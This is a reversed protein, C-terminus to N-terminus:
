EGRRGVVRGLSGRFGQRAVLFALTAGTTEGLVKYVTGLYPGFLAFAVPSFLLSPVLTFPRLALVGVFALPAWLGRDLIWAQLSKPDKLGQLLGSHHLALLVSLLLLLTLVPALALRLLGPRPNEEQSQTEPNM